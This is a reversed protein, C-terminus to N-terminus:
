EFLQLCHVREGAGRDPILHNPYFAPEGIAEEVGPKAAGRKKELTEETKKIEAEIAEEGMEGIERRRKARTRVGDGLRDSLQDREEEGMPRDESVEVAIGARRARRRFCDDIARETRAIEAELEVDSDVEEARVTNVFFVEEEEDEM